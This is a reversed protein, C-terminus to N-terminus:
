AQEQHQKELLAIRKALREADDRLTMVQASFDHRKEKRLLVPNEELLYEAVSEAFNQGNTKFNQLTIRGFQALRVAAIDGVLPALDEEVDWHLHTVVESITKAFDADGELTVHSFARQMDALILPIAAPQIRITVAPQDVDAWAQSSNRLLGEGTVNLFLQFGGVDFCATKGAHNKLLNNLTPQRALLHNITAAVPLASMM